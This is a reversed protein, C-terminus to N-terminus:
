SSEGRVLEVPLLIDNQSFHGISLAELIGKGAAQGMAYYPVRISTITPDLYQVFDHAGFGCVRPRRSIHGGALKFYKIAAAALLDNGALIADPVANRRMYEKLATGVDVVSLGEIRLTQLTAGKASRMAAKVGSTREVMSAWDRRPLLLLIKRAGQELMHMAVIKGGARDDSRVHCTRANSGVPLEHFVIVPQGQAELRELMAHRDPKSGSAVLCLADSSLRELYSVDKARDPSVGEIALAYGHANLYNSLGAAVQNHAPHSLFAPREDVVILAVCYHHSYRLGRAALNVRYNLQTIAKEVRKRTSASMSQFHGNIVNSVTIPSVRAVKAVMKLTVRQRARLPKNANEM